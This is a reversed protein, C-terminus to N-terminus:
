MKGKKTIILKEGGCHTAPLNGIDCLRGHGRHYEHETATTWSIRSTMNRKM